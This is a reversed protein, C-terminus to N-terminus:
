KMVIVRGEQIDFRLDSVQEISELVDKLKKSRKISGTFQDSSGAKFEVGEIPYWKALDAMITRISEDKFRFYGDRWALVNGIDVNKRLQITNSSHVVAQQGPKIRLRNRDAGVEVSGSLLTTEVQRDENYASINFKTGLVSVETNKAHVVFPLEKNHAVEFFAEGSLAVRRQKEGFAAYVQMSSNSNLYVISADPLMLRLSVGKPTVFHHKEDAQFFDAERDQKMVITGDDLRMIALGKYHITDEKIEDLSMQKGDALTIFADEQPLEIEGTSVAPQMSIVEDMHQRVDFIQYAVLGLLGSVLLVAAVKGFQVLRMKWSRPATATIARGKEDIQSLIGQFVRDKEFARNEETEVLEDVAELFDAEDLLSMYSDLEEQEKEDLTGALYRKFLIRFKNKDM